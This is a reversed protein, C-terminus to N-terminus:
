ENEGPHRDTTALGVLVLAPVALQALHFPFMGLTTVALAALAGAYPGRLARRYSWLLLGLLAVGVLGQEFLFQLPENHAPTFALTPLIGFAQQASPIYVAWAGPGLGFFVAPYGGAWRWVDVALAWIAVRGTITDVGKDLQGAALLGYALATLVVAVRARGRPVRPLQQAGVGVALAILGLRSQALWCGWAFLPAAYWPALPGLMALFVGLWNGHGLTGPLQHDLWYQERGWSTATSFEVSPGQGPIWLLDFGRSQNWAVAIQVLGAVVLLDRARQHLDRGRDLGQKVWAPVRPNDWIRWEAPPFWRPLGRAAVIVLAGFTMYGTVAIGEVPARLANLASYLILLGLWRDRTVLWGGLLAQVAIMFLMRPTVTVASAADIGGHRYGTTWPLVLALALVLLAPLLTM